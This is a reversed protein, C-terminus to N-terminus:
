GERTGAAERPLQRILKAYLRARAAGCGPQTDERRAWDFDIATWDPDDPDLGLTEIYYRDVVLFQHRYGLLWGRRGERVRAAEEHTKYWLNLHGGCRNPCLLRGFDTADLGSLVRKAQPWSAFGMEAALVALCDRRRINAPNFQPLTRFRRLMKPDLALARRHLIEARVRIEQTAGRM